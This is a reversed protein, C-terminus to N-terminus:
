NILVILQIMNRFQAPQPAPRAVPDILGSAPGDLPVQGM